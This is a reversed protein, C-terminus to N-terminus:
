VPLLLCQLLEEDVDKVEGAESDSDSDRTEFRFGVYRECLQLAQTKLKADNKVEDGKWDRLEMGGDVCSEHWQLSGMRLDDEGDGVGLVVFVDMLEDSMSEVHRSQLLM